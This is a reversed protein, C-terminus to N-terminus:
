GGRRLGGPHVQAGGEGGVFKFECVGINQRKNGGGKKGGWGGVGHKEEWRPHKKCHCRSYSKGKCVGIWGGMQLAFKASM